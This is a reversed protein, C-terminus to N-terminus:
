RDYLGDWAKRRDWGPPAKSLPKQLDSALATNKGETGPPMKENKRQGPPPNKEFFDKVWAATERPKIGTPNKFLEEMHKKVEDTAMPKSQVFSPNM